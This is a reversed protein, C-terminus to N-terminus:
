YPRQGVINGAPLYSCVWIQSKDGCVAKACGVEKTEKWVVQTYHGCVGSCSNNAYNYDKVENGWSDTVQEPSVTQLERRGDSWMLPSAMFLNEGYGRKMSHYFGCGNRTLTNAWNQAVNALHNSWTLGPVGVQSRWKNHAATIAAADVSGRAQPATYAPYAPYERYVSNSSTLMSQSYGEAKTSGCGVLACALLVLLVATLATDTKTLVRREKRQYLEGKTKM